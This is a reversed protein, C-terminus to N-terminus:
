SNSYFPRVSQKFCSPSTLYFDTSMFAQMSSSVSEEVDARAQNRLYLFTGTAVMAGTALMALLVILRWARLNITENRSMDEIHRTEDTKSSQHKRSADTQHISGLSSDFVDSGYGSESRCSEDQINEKNRAEIFSSNPHCEQM